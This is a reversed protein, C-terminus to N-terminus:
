YQLHTIIWLWIKVGKWVAIRDYITSLTLLSNIFICSLDGMFHSLYAGNAAANVIYNYALKQDDSMKNYDFEQKWQEQQAQWQKESFARNLADQERSYATEDAYRQDAVTDRNRAYATEDAYRQDAVTDRSRAYATEDAYRQDAVTDRSRAYATEDAYRQDAVTDRSRAYSTEDSYRQDAIADRLRAYATEDAYRQDAVTDRSRAYATEDAYRQDAVTDRSRAYATEDEYRKDAVTDRSRSYATEDAYRQDAVADRSLKYDWEKDRWEDEKEQQEIEGIRNQYDAILAQGLKNRATHKDNYMNAAIQGAFSSRGMGRALMANNQQSISKDYAKDSEEMQNTYTTNLSQWLRTRADQNNVDEATTAQKAKTVDEELVKKTNAM